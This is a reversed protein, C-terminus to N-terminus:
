WGPTPTQALWNAADNGSAAASSSQRSLATGTGDAGTPWPWYDNYICEDVIIWSISTPDLPDDSDQPRELTVREGNNSLNGSWPGFINVGATLNTNTYSIKFADLRTSETAPDFDVVLFRDGSSLTTNPPFEYDVGGDLAWSGTDTWLNVSSGTPNYLEIYEENTTGETPHYMIESIVVHAVLNTNAANQTGPSASFWDSGGDPYRSLSISNAQGKFQICDVVRDASTGPLYSLYIQEGAKDLGFGSTIPSHFGTIEDVSIRGGANLTRSPLAWKKLDDPDDSLYWNGSLSVSSDGANYLEIWDNSDYDPYNVPDSFDTHAM